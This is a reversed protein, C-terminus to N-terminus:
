KRIKFINTCKDAIKVNENLEKIKNYLSINLNLITNYIYNVNIQSIYLQRIMSKVCHTTKSNLLSVNIFVLYVLYMYRM